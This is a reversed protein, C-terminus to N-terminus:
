LQLIIILYSLTVGFIGCLFSLDIRFMGCASFGIKMVQFQTFMKDLDRTDQTDTDDRLLIKQVIVPSRNCENVALSCSVAMITMLAMCFSSWLVTEMVYLYGSQKLDIAYNAASVINIFVWFTACLLPVGYTTNILLSVDHLQSYITRLNRFRQHRSSVSLKMALTYNEVPTMFITDGNNLHTFKCPTLTSSELEFNLYKYKNRLLLVLNVFHLIAVSNLLVPLMDLIVDNTISFEADRRVVCLCFWLIALLTSMLVTLQIIIFILSNKYIQSRCNMTSFLQDIQSLKELIQPIKDHNITLPLLASIISYSYQSLSFLIEVVSQKVTYNATIIINISFYELAVLLIIWIASWIRCMYTSIIGHLPCESQPKLSYPALGSIKLMFHLPWVASYIDTASLISKM